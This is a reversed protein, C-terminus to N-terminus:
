HESNSTATTGERRGDRWWHLVLMAVGVVLLVDAINFVYPYNLGFVEVGSFDLFDRVQGTIIGAFGPVAVAVLMRDYFNGMAGGLILALAAHVWWDGARSTAFFCGVLCITLLTAAAVAPPPMPLGFVVGPNTSLTLRFGPFVPRHLGMLRIAQEAPLAHGYEIRLAEARRPVDADSLLSQFVAHKSWLDGVLGVAALALFIAIARVHRCAAQPDAFKSLVGQWPPGPRSPNSSDNDDAL